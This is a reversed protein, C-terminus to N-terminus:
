RCFATHATDRVTNNGAGFSIISKLFHEIFELPKLFTLHHKKQFFYIKSLKFLSFSYYYYFSVNIANKSHAQCYLQRVHRLKYLEGCKWLTSITIIGMKCIFSFYQFTLYSILRWETVLMMPIWLRTIGWEVGWLSLM